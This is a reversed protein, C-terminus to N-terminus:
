FRRRKVGLALLGAVLLPFLLASVSLKLRTAWSASIVLWSRTAPFDALLGLLCLNELLELAGVLLPLGALAQWAPRSPFLRQRLYSLLSTLALAMLLANALDLYQFRRYLARDAPGLAALWSQTQAASYGFREELLAGGGAARLAPYPGFNFLYVAAGLWVVVALAVNRGTSMSQWWSM